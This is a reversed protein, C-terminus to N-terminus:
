PENTYAFCPCDTRYELRRVADAGDHRGPGFMDCTYLAISYGTRDDLSVGHERM